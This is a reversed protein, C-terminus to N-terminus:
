LIRYELSQVVKETGKQVGVPSISATEAIPFFFEWPKAMRRKRSMRRRKRRDGGHIHHIHWELLISKTTQHLRCFAASLVLPLFSFSYTRLILLRLVAVLSISLYLSPKELYVQLLSHIRPRFEKLELTHLVDFLSAAAFRSPHPPITTTLPVSLLIHFLVSQLLNGASSHSLCTIQPIVFM